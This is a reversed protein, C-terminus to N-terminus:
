EIVEDARLLISQPVTLGLAKASGLNIVMEFKVPLQVPLESANAGRLIRDVYTAARAYINAFDPGYSLLGGKKALVSLAAVSPVKNSLALASITARHALTFGDPPLILGGGQEGGLSHIAARIEEDTRVPAEIPMVDFSRAAAHLSTIYYPGTATIPSYMVAARKVGPAIEELLELWKGGLSGEINIFGTLNGGPRALSAVFGSGVPDSIGAFVIPIKQTELHFANTGVTSSAVIVDPELAVLERARSRVTEVDAPSWRIDLRLNRADNWGLESLSRTFASLLVKQDPDNEDGYMLVAVRAVRGVQQARAVRSCLAASWVAAGSLGAIFKRRRM